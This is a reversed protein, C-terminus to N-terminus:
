SRATLKLWAHRYNEPQDSSLVDYMYIEGAVSIKDEPVMDFGNFDWFCEHTTEVVLGFTDRVSGSGKRRAYPQIWLTQTSVSVFAGSMKGALNAAGSFRSIKASVGWDMVLGSVDQKMVSKPITAM